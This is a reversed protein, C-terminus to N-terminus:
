KSLHKNIVSYIPEYPHKEAEDIMKLIKKPFYPKKVYKYISQGVSISDYDFSEMLDDIANKIKYQSFGFGEMKEKLPILLGYLLQNEGTERKLFYDLALQYLAKYIKLPELLHPLVVKDNFLNAEAKKIAAISQELKVQQTEKYDHFLEKRKDKPIDLLDVVPKIVDVWELASNKPIDNLQEWEFVKEVVKASLVRNTIVTPTQFLNNSLLTTKRYKYYFQEPPNHIKFLELEWNVKKRPM